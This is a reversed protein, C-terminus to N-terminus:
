GKLVSQLRRLDEDVDLPNSVTDAVASRLLERCRRRLRMVAVKVAGESMSLRVGVEAYTENGRDGQLYCALAAFVEGKGSEIFEKELRAVAEALVAMAWAQEYLLRPDVVEVPESLYRGEATEADFSLMEQGGGRKAACEHRWQNAMFNKLAGLLFSRFHGHDPDAKAVLRRELLYVFFSQVVDQSDEPSHGLRRVYAYLPYWYTSCLSELALRGEDGPDTEGARVIVSWRTTVFHWRERSQELGQGSPFVSACAECRGRLM